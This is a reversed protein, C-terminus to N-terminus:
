TYSSKKKQFVEPEQISGFFEWPKPAGPIHIYIHTHRIIHMYIYIQTHTDLVIFSCASLSEDLTKYGGFFAVPEVGVAGWIGRVIPHHCHRSSHLHSWTLWCHWCLMDYSCFRNTTPIGLFCLSSNLGCGWAACCKIRTAPRHNWESGLSRM